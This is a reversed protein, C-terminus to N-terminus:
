DKEIPLEIESPLVLKMLVALLVTVLAFRHKAYSEKAEKYESELDDQSMEALEEVTKLSKLRELTPTPGLISQLFKEYSNM